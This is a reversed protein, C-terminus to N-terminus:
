NESISFERAVPSIRSHFYPKVPASSVATYEHFQLTSHPSTQLFGGSHVRVGNEKQQVTAGVGLSHGRERKNREKKYDLRLLDLGRQMEFPIKIM